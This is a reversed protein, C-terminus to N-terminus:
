SNIIFCPSSLIFRHYTFYFDRELSQDSLKYVKMVEEIYPASAYNLSHYLPTSFVM